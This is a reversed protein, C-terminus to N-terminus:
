RKLLDTYYDAVSYDAGRTIREYVRGSPWVVSGARTRVGPFRRAELRVWGWDGGHNQRYIEGVYAGFRQAFTMVEEDSPKPEVSAYAESLRALTQEVQEISAETGDLAIDYRRWAFQVAERAMPVAERQVQADASFDPEDTGAGAADLVTLALAAFLMAARARRPPLRKSRHM